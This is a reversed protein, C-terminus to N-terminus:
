AAGEKTKDAASDPGPPGLGLESRRLMAIVQALLATLPFTVLGVASVSIAVFFLAQVLLDIPGGTGAAAQWSGLSLVIATVFLVGFLAHTIAAMGLGTLWAGTGARARRDLAKWRLAAASEAAVVGLGGFVGFQGWAVGDNVRVMLASWLGAAGLPAVFAAVHLLLRARSM